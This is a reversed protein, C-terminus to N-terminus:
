YGIIRPEVYWITTTDNNGWSGVGNNQFKNPNPTNTLETPGSPVYISRRGALPESPYVYVESVTPSPAVYVESTSPAVYVESSMPTSPYYYYTGPVSDSYITSGGMTRMDSNQAKNPNPSYTQAMPATCYLAAAAAAILSLKLKM